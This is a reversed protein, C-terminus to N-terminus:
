CKPGPPKTLHEPPGQTPVYPFTKSFHFRDRFPLIDITRLGSNVFHFGHTQIDIKQYRFKDLYRRICRFDCFDILFDILFNYIKRYSKGTHNTISQQAKICEIINPYAEINFFRYESGYSGNRLNQAGYSRYKVTEHGIENKLFIEIHAGGLAGPGKAGFTCHGICNM